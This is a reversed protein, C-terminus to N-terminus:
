TETDYARIDIGTGPGLLLSVDTTKWWTLFIEQDRVEIRALDENFELRKSAALAVQFYPNRRGETGPWEAAMGLAGTVILDGQDALLGPLEDTDTLIPPRTMYYYRLTRQVTQHPWVEYKVRGEDVSTVGIKQSALAYPLGTSARWPDVKNLDAQSWGTKIRIPISPELVVIFRQFDAPCTVYADLVTAAIATQSPSGWVQDLTATNAGTNVSMITYAFCAAIKFQRGVDTAAFTLTVGQVTASNRVTTATGTNATEIIFQGETRLWSWGVRTAAKRYAQRVWYEALFPGAMPCHMLVTRWCDAYRDAM